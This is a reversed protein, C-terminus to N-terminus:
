KGAGKSMFEIVNKAGGRIYAEDIKDELTLLKPEGEVSFKGAWGYKVLFDARFTLVQALEEQGKDGYAAYYAASGADKRIDAVLERYVAARTADNIIEDQRHVLRELRALEQKAKSIMTLLSSKFGYFQGEEPDRQGYPDQEM